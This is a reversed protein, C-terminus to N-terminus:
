SDSVFDYNQTIKLTGQLTGNIIDLTLSSPMGAIGIGLGVGLPSSISFIVNSIFFSMLSLDSQAINLGLSFAM